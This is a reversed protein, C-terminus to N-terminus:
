SRTAPRVNERRTGRSTASRSTSRCTWSPKQAATGTDSATAARRPRTISRTTIRGKARARAGMTTLMMTVRPSARRRDARVWCSKPASWSMTGFSWAIKGRVAANETPPTFTDQSRKPTITRRAPSAAAVQHNKLAVRVPSAM